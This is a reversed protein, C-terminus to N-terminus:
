PTEQSNTQVNSPNFLTESQGVPAPAPLALSDPEIAKTERIPEDVAKVDPPLQADVQQQNTAQADADPEPTNVDQRLKVLEDLQEQLKSVTMLLENLTQHLVAQSKSQARRHAGLVVAQLLLAAIVFSIVVFVTLRKSPQETSHDSDVVTESPTDAEASAAAAKPEQVNQAAEASATAAKLVQAAASAAAAKPKQKATNAKASQQKPKQSKSAPAAEAAKAATQTTPALIALSRDDVGRLDKNWESRTLYDMINQRILQGNELDDFMQTFVKGPTMDALNFMLHQPGDSVAAIGANGQAPFLNALFHNSDEGGSRLFATMNDFEGKQPAFATVCVRHQRLVLAGDGVQFCGIHHTGAIAYAVTFDFDKEELGREAALDLKVQALTRYMIRCFKDWAAKNEAEVDLINVLFPELVSTQFRFM